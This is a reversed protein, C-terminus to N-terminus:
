TTDVSMGSLSPYEPCLRVADGRLAETVVARETVILVCTFYNAAHMLTVARVDDIGEIM